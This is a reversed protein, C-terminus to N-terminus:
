SDIRLSYKQEEPEPVFPWNVGFVANDAGFPKSNLDGTMLIRCPRNM